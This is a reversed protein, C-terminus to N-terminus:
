EGPGVKLKSKAHRYWGTHAGTDSYKTELKTLGEMRANGSSPLNLIHGKTWMKYSHSFVFIHLKEVNVALTIPRM